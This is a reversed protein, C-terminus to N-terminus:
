GIQGSPPILAARILGSFPSAMITNSVPWGDSVVLIQECQTSHCVPETCDEMNTIQALRQQSNLALPMFILAKILGRAVYNTM